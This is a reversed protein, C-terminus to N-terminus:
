RDDVSRDALEFRRGGLLRITVLVLFIRAAMLAFSFAGIERTPEEPNRDGAM